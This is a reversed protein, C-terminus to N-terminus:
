SRTPVTRSRTCAPRQSSHTDNDVGLANHEPNNRGLGGIDRWIGWHLLHHLRSRNRKPWVDYAPLKEATPFRAVDGVELAIVAALTLGVGPLTLLRQITPTPRGCRARSSPPDAPTPPWALLSGHELFASSRTPQHRDSSGPTHITNIEGASRRVSPGETTSHRPPQCKSSKM